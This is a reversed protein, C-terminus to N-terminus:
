NRPAGAPELVREMTIYPTRGPDQGAGTEVFGARKFYALNGPLTVRVRLTLRSVGLRRADGEAAQLLARGIGAKRWAPASVMRTLYLADGKRECFLSGVFEDGVQAVLVIGNRQRAALDAVTEDLVGSPPQFEAFASHVMALIDDLRDASTWRSIKFAPAGV